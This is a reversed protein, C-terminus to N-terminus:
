AAFWLCVLIVLASCFASQLLLKWHLIRCRSLHSAISAQSFVAPLTLRKGVWASREGKPHESEKGVSILSLFPNSKICIPEDCGHMKNRLLNPPSEFWKLQSRAENGEKNSNDLLVFLSFIYSGCHLGSFPCFM